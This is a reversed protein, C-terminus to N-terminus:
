KRAAGLANLLRGADAKGQAAGGAAQTLEEQSHGAVQMSFQGEISVLLSGDAQPAYSVDLDDLGASHLAGLVQQAVQTESMGVSAGHQVQEVLQALRSGEPTTEMDVYDQPLAALMPFRSNVRQMMEAAQGRTANLLTLVLQDRGAREVVFAHLAGQPVRLATFESDLASQVEAFSAPDLAMTDAANDYQAWASPLSTYVVTGVQRSQAPMVWLTATATLLLVFPALAYRLPAPSTLISSYWPRRVPPASAVLRSIQRWSLLEGSPVSERLLAALQEDRQMPQQERNM